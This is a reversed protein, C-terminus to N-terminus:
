LFQKRSNRAEASWHQEHLIKPPEKVASFYEKHPHNVGAVFAHRGPGLFPLINNAWVDSQSM